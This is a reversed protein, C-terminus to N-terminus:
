YCTGNELSPLNTDFGGEGDHQLSYTCDNWNTVPISEDVCPIACAASSVRTILNNIDVLEVNYTFFGEYFTGNELKANWGFSSNNPSANFTEFLLNGFPDFIQFSRIEKFGNNTFVLFIDNTGDLNPTFANPIYLSRNGNQILTPEIECCGSFPNAEESDKSCASCLFLIGSLLFFSLLKLMKM